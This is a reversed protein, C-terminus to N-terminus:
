VFILDDFALLYNAYRYWSLNFLLGSIFFKNTVKLYQWKVKLFIDMYCYYCYFTETQERQCPLPLPFKAGGLSSVKTPSQNFLLDRLLSKDMDFSTPPHDNGNAYIFTQAQQMLDNSGAQM